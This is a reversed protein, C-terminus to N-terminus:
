ANQLKLMQACKLVQKAWMELFEKDFYFNGDKVLQRTNDNDSFSGMEIARSMIEEVEEMQERHLGIEFTLFDMDDRVWVPPHKLKCDYRDAQSQLCQALETLTFNEHM